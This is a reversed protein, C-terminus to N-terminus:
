GVAMRQWTAGGDKTMWWGYGASVSSAEQDFVVGNEPGRFDIWGQLQPIGRALVAHWTRGGDSSHVMTGVGQLLLNDPTTALFVLAEPNAKVFTRGHTM